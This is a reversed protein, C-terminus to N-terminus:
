SLWKTLAPAICVFAFAVFAWSILDMWEAAERDAEGHYAVSRVLFGGMGVVGLAVAMAILFM